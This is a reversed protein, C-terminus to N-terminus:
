EWEVAVGNRSGRVEGFFGPFGTIALETTCLRQFGLALSSEDESGNNQFKGYLENHIGNLLQLNAIRIPPSLVLYAHNLLRMIEPRENASDAQQEGEYRTEKEWIAMVM